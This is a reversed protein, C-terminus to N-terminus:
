LLAVQSNLTRTVVGLLAPCKDKYEKKLVDVALLPLDTSEPEGRKSGKTAAAIAAASQVVGYLARINKGGSIEV